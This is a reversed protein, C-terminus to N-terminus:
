VNMNPPPFCAYEVDCFRWYDMVSRESIYGKYLPPQLLARLDM